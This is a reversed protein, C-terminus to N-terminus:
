HVQASGTVPMLSHCPADEAVDPCRYKVSVCHTNDVYDVGM